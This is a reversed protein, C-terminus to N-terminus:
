SNKSHVLSSAIPKEYVFRQVKHYESVWIATFMGPVNSHENPSLEILFGIVTTHSHYEVVSYSFSAVEAKEPPILGAQYVLIFVLQPDSSNHRKKGRALDLVNLNYGMGTHHVFMGM